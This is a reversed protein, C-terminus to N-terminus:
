VFRFYGWHFFVFNTQAPRAFDSSAVALRRGSQCLPSPTDLLYFRRSQFAITAKNDVPKILGFVPM